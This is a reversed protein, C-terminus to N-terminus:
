LFTAASVVEKSYFLLYADPSVVDEFALPTM